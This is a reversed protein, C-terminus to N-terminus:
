EPGRHHPRRLEGGADPLQRRFFFRTAQLRVERPAPGRRPVEISQSITVYTKKSWADANARTATGTLILGGLLCMCTFHFHKM